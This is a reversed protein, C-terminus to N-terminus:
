SGAAFHVGYGAFGIQGDAWGAQGDMELICWQHTWQNENAHEWSYGMCELVMGLARTAGACSYEGAIFVGYAQSYDSGSTTYVCKACYEAVAQAAQTVRELDTGPGIKDAISQAVARAQETKSPAPKKTPAPKSAETKEPPAATTAPKETVASVASTRQGTLTRGDLVASAEVQYYRLSGAALGSHTYAAEVLGEAIATYAGDAKEAAYVTYQVPVASGDANTEEFPLADWTLHIQSTGSAKAALGTVVGLMPLATAAEITQSAPSRVPDTGSDQRIATVTATYATGAPLGEFSAEPQSVTQAAANGKSPDAPRLVAEYRDANEVADWTIRVTHADTFVAIGAPSELRIPSPASSPSSPTDEPRSCGAALCLLAAALAAAKQFHQGFKHTQMCFDAGKHINHAAHWSISIAPAEAFFAIVAQKGYVGKQLKDVM